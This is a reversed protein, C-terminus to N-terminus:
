CEEDPIFYVKYITENVVKKADAIGRLYAAECAAMIATDLARSQNATEALHQAIIQRMDDYSFSM